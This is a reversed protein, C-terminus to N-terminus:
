LDVAELHAWLQACLGLPYRGDGKILQAHASVSEQRHAEEVVTGHDMLVICTTALSPRLAQDHVIRQKQGGSLSGGSRQVLTQYGEALKEVLDHANARKCAAIAQEDRATPEGMKLDLPGGYKVNDM